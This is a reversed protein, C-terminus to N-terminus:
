HLDGVKGDPSLSYIPAPLSRRKRTKADLIHSVFHDGERDNWIVESQTGPVWQLMCGQQRSWAKSQGLEIWRDYDETDIMGMQITDDARPKRGEFM